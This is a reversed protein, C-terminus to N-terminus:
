NSPGPSQSTATHLQTMLAPDVSQVLQGYTDPGLRVQLQQLCQLVASRLDVAGTGQEQVQRRRIELPASAPKRGAGFDDAVLVSVWCDLVQSMHQLAARNGTSMIACLALACLKRREITLICDARDLWAQLVESLCQETHLMSLLAETNGVALRALGVVAEVATFDGCAGAQLRDRICM